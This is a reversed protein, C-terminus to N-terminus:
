CEYQFKALLRRKVSVGQFVCTLEKWLRRSFIERVEDELDGGEAKVLMGALINRGGGGAGGTHSPPYQYSVTFISPNM